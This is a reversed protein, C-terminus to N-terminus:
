GNYQIRAVASLFADKREKAGNRRFDANTAKVPLQGAM